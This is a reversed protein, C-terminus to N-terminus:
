AYVGRIDNLRVRLIELLMEKSEKAFNRNKGISVDRDKWSIIVEKVKFGLKKAVFLLEVDWAGVKWGRANKMEEFIKLKGLIKKGDETKFSKFGCQTDIIEPLILARRLFRFGASTLQRYWAFGERKAGRSGIVVSFGKEYFSLLKEVQGIPTSQDMDVFLCIEGEAAMVGSRIAFPKGGHKNKLLKFGSHSKVFEEALVLSNDTSEDDSIIVESSYNQRKLFDEVESLVGKKLNKEENYMPIVVSLYPKKM